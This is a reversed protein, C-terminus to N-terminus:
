QFLSQANTTANHLNQITEGATGYISMMQNLYPQILWYAGVSLFIIVAWYAIKMYRGWRYSRYLRRIMDNNDEALRYTKELLEREEPTM